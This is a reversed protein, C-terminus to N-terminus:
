AYRSRYATVKTPGSRRPERIPGRARATIAYEGPIANSTAPNATNVVAGNTVVPGDQEHMVPGLPVTQGDHGGGAVM